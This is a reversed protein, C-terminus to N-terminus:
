ERWPNGSQYAKLRRVMEPRFSAADPDNLALAKEQTAVAVGFQGAEAYAAALTDLRSVSAASAVAAKAFEIALKADRVKAHPSTALLWAYDNAAHTREERAMRGLWRAAEEHAQLDGIVLLLRVYRTVGPVHGTLAAKRYWVRAKDADVPVGLGAQYVYGLGVWADVSGQQGAREFWERAADVDAKAGSGGLYAHAVRVQGEALGVDAAEKFLKFAAAQDTQGLEGTTHMHGQMVLAVASGAARAKEYWATAKQVDTEAVYPARYSLGMHLMAIADGEAAAEALWRRAQRTNREIGEGLLLSRGAMVKGELYDLEAAKEFLLWALSADQKIGLGRQHLRGLAVLAAPNEANFELARNYDLRASVYLQQEFYSYGRLYYARSRESDALNPAILAPELYSRALEPQGQDILAVAKEILARADLAIAQSGMAWVVFAILFRSVPWMTWPTYSFACALAARLTSPQCCRNDLSSTGSYQNLHSTEVSNPAVQNRCPYCPKLHM